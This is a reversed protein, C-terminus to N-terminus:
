STCLIEAIAEIEVTADMPLQNVAIATRAHCGADGLVDYLLQSAANIVIHQQDFGVASSVFAQIKIIRKIRDLDGCYSKLATLINIACIKAAEQGEELTRNDGLKGTYLLKDDLMPIQGSVYLLNGTQVVPIYLAKPASLPPLDIGMEKLRKEAIM